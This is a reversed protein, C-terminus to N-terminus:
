PSQTSKKKSVSMFISSDWNFIDHEHYVIEKIDETTFLQEGIWIGADSETEVVLM